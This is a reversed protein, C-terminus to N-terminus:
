IKNLNLFLKTMKTKRKDDIYSEEDSKIEEDSSYNSIKKIDIDDENIYYKILNKDLGKKKKKIKFFKNISQNGNRRNNENDNARNFISNPNPILLELFQITPNKIQNTLYFLYDVSINNERIYDPHEVKDGQLINPKYIKLLYNLLNRKLENNVFQSLDKTNYIESKINKKIEEIGDIYKKVGHLNLIENNLLKILNKLIIDDKIHSKIMSGKCDSKIINKLAFVINDYKKELDKYLYMTKDEIENYCKLINKHKDKFDNVFGIIKKKFNNLKDKIIKSGDITITIFPIRTNVQPANGPDRLAMRDALCVHAMRTRDKYTSKLTKTTEFDALPYKGKMLKSISKKVFKVAKETDIENLLIDVMGGVIKKVINANDRRKLVIGMSNQYFSKSDFEYKNGVYRKKSLICFPYFTKEYELDHPQCLKSKIFNGAIKGLEIAFDLSEKNEYFDNNSLRFQFDIFVSDTDGYVTKPEISCKTLITNITECTETIFKDNNLNNKLENDMLEKLKSTKEKKHYEYIRKVIPPFINEMYERAYELMERGTSTTSAAIAKMYIPSVSSGLQGYLSNATLKYALQLGDYVSKKFYDKENKMLKKTAKRQSLLKQLITPLVGLSGDKKQAYRCKTISGDNNKYETNWYKYNPLNDYKPNDVYTEHSLNKHIMCSPYLSAFDLVTIPRKYFGIDPKFVTAGEYGDNSKECLHNSVKKCEKTCFDKTCKPCKFWLDNYGKIKKKNKHCFGICETKPKKVVPIIYNLKRCFKAVLSFIKIGQGRFFLFSLPISCVNSMGINNTVVCLRAMLKNVLACDQICYEAVIKRDASSGEQLRFIDAPTVDDKALGWKIRKYEKIVVNKNLLLLNGDKKVVKFKEGDNFTCGDVILKIFNGQEIDKEGSVTLTNDNFSTVSGSLFHESVSDLKYSKLKYDRQVVKFLDIQVRGTSEYYKLKNDGLASSSLKMEKFKLIENAKRGFKGFYNDLHKNNLGLKISRDKIYVEDFGFINYGTIIDPDERIILKQWALLVEQETEYAEVDVGDIDDCSGLTVIHKYYCSEDGNRSFTSGIQIIKDCDRYAQPFSGDGSTCEIDFSLIKISSMSNNEIVSKVNTWETEIAYDTNYRKSPLKNFKKVSIWGSANIDRIHLFRLLPPINTEYVKYKKKKALGRISIDKYLAYQFRRMGDLSNFVLMAFKYKKGARFGYLKNRRRIEYNILSFRFKEPWVKKKLEEVFMELHRGEWHKPIEVYFYPTFNTIKLYVSKDDKTRGYTEIYYYFEDPDNEQEEKLLDYDNWDITNFTIAM